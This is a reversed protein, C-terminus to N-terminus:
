ATACAGCAAARFRAAVPLRGLRDHGRGADLRPHGDSPGSTAGPRIGRTRDAARRALPHRLGAAPQRPSRRPASPPTAATDRIRRDSSALPLLRFPLLLLNAPRALVHGDDGDEDGPRANGAALDVQGRSFTQRWRFGDRRVEVVFRRSLANVAILGVGHIGRGPRWLSSCRSQYSTCLMELLYKDGAPMPDVPIGRGEDRVRLGGSRLIEIRDALWAGTYRRSPTTSSRM